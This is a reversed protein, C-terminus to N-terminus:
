YSYERHRKITFLVIGAIIIIAPVFVYIYNQEKQTVVIPESDSPTGIADDNYTTRLHISYNGTETPKLSVRYEKSEMPSIIDYVQRLDGEIVEMSPPPTGEVLVSKADAKGTNTIKVTAKIVDGTQINNKNLSIFTTLNAKKQVPGAVTITFSNSTSIKSGYKVVSPEINFTGSDVAKLVYYLERYDGADLKDAMGPPFNGITSFGKPFPEVLTLNYATANGTNEVKITFSVVDGENINTKDVYKTLVLNPIGIPIVPTVIQYKKPYGWGVPFEINILASTETISSVSLKVDYFTIPPENDHLNKFVSSGNTTLNVVVYGDQKAIKILEVIYSGSEFNLGTNNEMTFNFKQTSAGGVTSFLVLVLFLFILARM